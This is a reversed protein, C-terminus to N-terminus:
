EDDPPLTAHLTQYTYLDVVIYGYVLGDEDHNYIVM